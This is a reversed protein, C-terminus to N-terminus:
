NSFSHSSAGINRCGVGKRGGLTVIRQIERLGILKTGRWVLTIGALGAMAAGFFLFVGVATVGGSNPSQKSGSEWEMSSRCTSDVRM